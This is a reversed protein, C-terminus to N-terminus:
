FGPKDRTAENFPRGENAAVARHYQQEAGVYFYEAIRSPKSGDATQEWETSGAWITGGAGWGTERLQRVSGDRSYYFYQDKAWGAELASSTNLLGSEPIRCTYKGKDEQLPLAGNEGYKVEVWGVYGDPILFTTPHRSIPSGMSIAADVSLTFWWLGTILCTGIGLFRARGTGVASLVFGALTPWFLLVAFIRVATTGFHQSVTPSVWSLHLFLL